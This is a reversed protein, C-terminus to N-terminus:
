VSRCRSGSATSFSSPRVKWGVDLRHHADAVHDRDVARQVGLRLMQEVVRQDARHLAAGVEDVRRAALDAVAVGDHPRELAPLEGTVRAVDPKRLRRRLSWGQRVIGCWPMVGCM